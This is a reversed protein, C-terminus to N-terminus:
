LSNSYHWTEEYKGKVIMVVVMVVMVIMMVMMLDVTRAGRAGITMTMWTDGGWLHSFFPCDGSAVLETPSRDLQIYLGRRHM